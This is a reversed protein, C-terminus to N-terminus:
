NQEEDSSDILLKSEEEDLAEISKLKSNMMRTRTGVLTDLEDAAANVRKQTKELAEAFKGFETKVAGLLKFVDASKKQIMLSRFGMNLSNIFATFTTPGTLNVKFKTQIEEFLGMNLAELYLGELPLFIVAFDTTNPVDIYKESVDKAYKLLNSRLLKKAENIQDVDTSENIISYSEYPFKSDVPLYITEDKQGPLKIAFEVRESSGVKTAVNEEYQGATLFERIINGLIVEGMMGKTKVNTLVNKLSGVDTALGKIEGVAKNVDGIGEVVSKFSDKLKDELTKQLKENVSENIKELKESNDKRITELNKNVTESLGKISENTNNKFEELKEKISKNFTEIANNVNENFQKMESSLKNMMDEKQKGSDATFKNVFDNIIKNTKENNDNLLKITEEKFKGYSQILDNQSKAMEEIKTKLENMLNANREAILRATTDSLTNVSENVSKKIKDLDNDGLSLDGTKKNKLVIILVIVAVVASIISFALTVYEM